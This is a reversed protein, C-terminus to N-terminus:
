PAWQQVKTDIAVGDVWMTQAMATEFDSSVLGPFISAHKPAIVAHNGPSGILTCTCQVGQMPSTKPYSYYVSRKSRSSQLYTWESMSYLLSASMTAIDSLLRCNSPYGPQIQLENKWCTILGPVSPPRHPSMLSPGRAVVQILFCFRLSPISSRRSSSDPHPAALSSGFTPQWSVSFLAPYTRVSWLWLSSSLSRLQGFPPHHLQGSSIKWIVTSLRQSSRQLFKQVRQFFTKFSEKSFDSSSNTYVNNSCKGPHM